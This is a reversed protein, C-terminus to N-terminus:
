YDKFRRMWEPWDDPKVSGAKTWPGATDYNRHWKLTWLEKLGVKRVSWDMFLYNVHGNHRNICTGGIFGGRRPWTGEIEAPPFESEFFGECPGFCDFLLPVNRAGQVHCTGWFRRHYYPNTFWVAPPNEYARQNAVWTNIGYSILHYEKNSGLSWLASRSIGVTVHCPDGDTSRHRIRTASPCLLMDDNGGYYPGMVDPWQSPNRPSWPYWCFFNGNNDETYMQFSTAWQRLRARCAVDQAQTRVRQLSPLLIAMLLAIIAIVVLLEILTFGKVRRM